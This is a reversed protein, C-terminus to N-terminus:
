FKLLSVSFKRVYAQVNTFSIRRKSVDISSVSLKLIVLHELIDKYCVVTSSLIEHAEDEIVDRNKWAMELQNFHELQKSDILLNVSSKESQHKRLRKWFTYTEKFLCAISSHLQMNENDVDAQIPKNHKLEEVDIHSCLLGADM